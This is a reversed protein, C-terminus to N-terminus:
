QKSELRKELNKLVKSVKQGDRRSLQLSHPGVLRPMSHLPICVETIVTEPIGLPPNGPDEIKYVKIIAVRPDFVTTPVYVHYRYDKMYGYLKRMGTDNEITGPVEKAKGYLPLACENELTKAM